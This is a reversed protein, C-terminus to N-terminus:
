AVKKRERMVENYFDSNENVEHIEFIDIQKKFAERLDEGLAYVLSLKFGAGGFVILDIDSDETATGKAYSGFLYISDVGYQKAFPKIINAIEEITYIKNTNSSM